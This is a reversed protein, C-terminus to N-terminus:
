PTARKSLEHIRMALAQLDKNGFCPALGNDLMCSLALVVGRVGDDQGVWYAPEMEQRLKALMAEEAASV